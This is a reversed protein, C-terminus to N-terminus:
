KQNSDIGNHITIITSINTTKTTTTTSNGTTASTCTNGTIYRNSEKVNLEYSRVSLCSLLCSICHIVSINKKVKQNALKFMICTCNKHLLQITQLLFDCWNFWYCSFVRVILMLFSPKYSVSICM